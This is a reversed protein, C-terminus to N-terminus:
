KDFSCKIEYEFSTSEIINNIIHNNNRFFYPEYLSLYRSINLVDTKNKYLVNEACSDCESIIKSSIEKKIKELYDKNELSVSAEDSTRIKVDIKTKMVVKDDIIKPKITTKTKTITIAVPRNDVDCSYVATKINNTLWNLGSTQKSKHIIIKNKFM